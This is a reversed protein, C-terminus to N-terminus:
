RDQWTIQRPSQKPTENGIITAPLTGVYPTTNIENPKYQDRWIPATITLTEQWKCKDFRDVINQYGMEILKDKGFQVVIDFLQNSSLSDVLLWEGNEAKWYRNDCYNDYIYAAICRCENADLTIQLDVSCKTIIEFLKTEDLM